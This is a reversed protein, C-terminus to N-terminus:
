GRRVRIQAQHGSVVFADEPYLVSPTIGRCHNVTKVLNDSAVHFVPHTVFFCHVEPPEILIPVVHRLPDESVLYFTAPLPHQVTVM